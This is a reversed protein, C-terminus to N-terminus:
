TALQEQADNLEALVKELTEGLARVEDATEAKKVEARIDEAEKTKANIVKELYEKM